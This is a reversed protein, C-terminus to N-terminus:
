VPTSGTIWPVPCPISLPPALSSAPIPGGKLTRVQSPTVSILVTHGLPVQTWTVRSKPTVSPSSGLRGGQLHVRGAHM